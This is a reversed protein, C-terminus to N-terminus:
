RIESNQMKIIKVCFRLAPKNKQYLYEINM